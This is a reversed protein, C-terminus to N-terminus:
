TAELDVRALSVLQKELMAAPGYKLVWDRLTCIVKSEISGVQANRRALQVIHTTRSIRLQEYRRLAARLDGNASLCRGLVVADELAQAAGQGAHPLMPHAADGLLTVRQDGWRTLPVRDALEDRRMERVDTREVLAILAPDFGQITELLTQKSDLSGRAVRQTASIYWYILDGGARAVGAEIGRGFYQSGTVPWSGHCIGRYAVFSSARLADGHLQKRVISHIGDAGVLVDGALREGGELEVEVGAPHQEFRVVRASTRLESGRAAELLTGHLVQRTACVADEGTLRRLSDLKVSKLVHGDAARLEGVTGVEAEALIRDAVGLLRLARMANAALLLAFGLERTEAARELVTTRFGARTLSVAAALGGIGAGIILARPREVDPM